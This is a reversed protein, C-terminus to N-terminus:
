GGMPTSSLWQALADVGAAGVLYGTVLLVAVYFGARVAIM